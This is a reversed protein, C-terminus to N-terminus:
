MGNDGYCVCAKSDRFVIQRVDELGKEGGFLFAVTHPKPERCHITNDIVVVTPDVDLASRSLARCKDDPQRYRIPSLQYSM